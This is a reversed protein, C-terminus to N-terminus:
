VAGAWVIRFRQRPAKRAKLSFHGLNKDLRGRYSYFEALTSFLQTPHAHAIRASRMPNVTRYLIRSSIM